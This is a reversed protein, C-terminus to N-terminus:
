AAREFGIEATVGYHDSIQSFPQQPTLNPTVAVDAVSARVGAASPEPEPNHWLVYDISHMVMSDGRTTLVTERPRPVGDKGVVINGFTVPHYGLRERLTDHLEIIRKGKFADRNDPGLIKPDIGHGQLVAMMARGEDSTQVGDEVDREYAIRDPDSLRHARSDVNFDGTLVVPEGPARHRPLVDELFRHFEHMQALRRKVDPQTIFVDGYSAQTHTTFLHMHTTAPEAGDAGAVAVAIKAYLVGKQAIWDPGIGRQYTITEADVIPLRSLIALGGDIAANWVFKRESLVHYRFGLKEAAAVLRSRRSSAFEFMEQLCVVQYNPLIHEIFFDLRADKWDSKNNKILPPRMFMNQTLVRVRGGQAPLAPGGAPGVRDVTMTTPAQSQLADFRYAAFVSALVVLASVLHM